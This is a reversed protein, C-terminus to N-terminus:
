TFLHTSFDFIQVKDLSRCWTKYGRPFKAVQSVLLEYEVTNAKKFHSDETQFNHPSIIVLSLSYVVARSWSWSVQCHSASIRTMEGSTSQTECPFRWSKCFTCSDRGVMPQMDALEPIPVCALIWLLFFAISAPCCCLASCVLLHSDVGGPSWFDFIDTGGLVSRVEHHCSLLWWKERQCFVAHLLWWSKNQLAAHLASVDELVVVLVASWWSLWSHFNSWWAIHQSPWSEYM